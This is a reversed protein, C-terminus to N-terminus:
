LGNKEAFLVTMPLGKKPGNSFAICIFIIYANDKFPFVTMEQFKAGQVHHNLLSNVFQAASKM